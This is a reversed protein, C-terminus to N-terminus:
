CFNNDKKPSEWWYSPEVLLPTEFFPSLGAFYAASFSNKPSSSFYISFTLMNKPFNTLPSSSFILSSSTLFALHLYPNHASDLGKIMALCTLLRECNDQVVHWPNSLLNDLNQLELLEVNCCDSLDELFVVFFELSLRFHLYAIFLEITAGVCVWKELFPEWSIGWTHM